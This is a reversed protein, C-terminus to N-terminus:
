LQSNREKDELWDPDVIKEKKLSKHKLTRINMAFWTMLKEMSFNEPKAQEMEKGRCYILCDIVKVPSVKLNLSDFLAALQQRTPAYFIKLDQM